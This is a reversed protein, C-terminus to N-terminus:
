SSLQAIRMEKLITSSKLVVDAFMLVFDVWIEFETEYFHRFARSIYLSKSELNYSTSLRCFLNSHNIFGQSFLSSFLLKIIQKDCFGEEKKGSTSEDVFIIPDRKRCREREKM